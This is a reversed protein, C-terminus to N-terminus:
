NKSQSSLYRFAIIRGECKISLKVPYLVKLQFNNDSLIKFSNGERRKSGLTVRPFSANNQNRINQIDSAKKRQFSQFSIKLDGQGQDSIEHHCAKIHNRNENITSPVYSARENQFNM